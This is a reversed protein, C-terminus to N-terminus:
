GACQRRRRRMLVALLTGAALVVVGAAVLPPVAGLGQTPTAAVGRVLGVSDDSGFASSARLHHIPMWPVPTAIPQVVTPAHHAVTAVHKVTVPTAAQATREIVIAMSGYITFTRAFQAMTTGNYSGTLPDSFELTGASTNVGMLVVVHGAETWPV